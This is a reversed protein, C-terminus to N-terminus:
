DASLEGARIGATFETWQASTLVLVAYALRRTMPFELLPLHKPPFLATLRPDGSLGYVRM